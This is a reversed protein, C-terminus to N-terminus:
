KTTEQDTKKYSEADPTPFSWKLGIFIYVLTVSQWTEKKSLIKQQFVLENQDNQKRQLNISEKQSLFSHHSVDKATELEQQL